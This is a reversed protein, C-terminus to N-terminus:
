TGFKVWAVKKELLKSYGLLAPGIATFGFDLPIGGMLLGAIAAPLAVITVIDGFKQLEAIKQIDKTALEFDRQMLKLTKVDGQYVAERWEDLKERFRKMYKHNFLRFLDNMNEVKPISNVSKVYLRYLQLREEEESFKYKKRLNIDQPIKIQIGYDLSLDILRRTEFHTKWFCHIPSFQQNTVYKAFINRELFSSFDNQHIDGWLSEIDKFNRFYRSPFLSTLYEESYSMLDVEEANKLYLNM